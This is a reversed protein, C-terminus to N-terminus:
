HILSVRATFTGSTTNARVLYIGSSVSAGSDAKGDWTAVLEEGGKHGTALTRVLQGRINFVDIRYPGAGAKLHLELSERFPNPSCSLSTAIPPTPPNSSSGDIYEWNWTRSSTSNYTYDSSYTWQSVMLGAANYQTTISQSCYMDYYSHWNYQIHRYEDSYTYTAFTSDPFVYLYSNSNDYVFKGHALESAPYWKQGDCVYQITTYGESQESSGNGSIATNKELRYVVNGNADFTNYKRSTIVQIISNLSTANHQYLISDPEAYAGYFHEELQSTMMENAGDRLRNLQRSTLRGLTDYNHLEERCLLLTNGELGYYRESIQNGAADYAYEYKSTVVMNTNLQQVLFLLGQSNYCRRTIGFFQPTGSYSRFSSEDIQYYDAFDTRCFVSLLRYNDSYSPYVQTVTSDLWSPENINYYHTTQEQTESDPGSSLFSSSSYHESAVRWFGNSGDKSVVNQAALLSFGLLLVAMLTFYKM